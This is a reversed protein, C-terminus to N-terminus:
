GFLNTGVPNCHCYSRKVIEVSLDCVEVTQLARLTYIGDEAVHFLHYGLRRLPLQLEACLRALQRFFDSIIPADGVGFPMSPLRQVEERPMVLGNWKKQLGDIEKALCFFFLCCSQVSSHKSGQVRALSVVLLAHRQREFVEFIGPREAVVFAHRPHEATQAACIQFQANGVCRKAMGHLSKRRERRNPMNGSLSASVATNSRNQSRHTAVVLRSAVM